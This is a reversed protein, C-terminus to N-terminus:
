VEIKFGVEVDSGAQGGRIGWNERAVDHLVIKVHDRPVDLAELNRVIAQYLARKAQITRGAFADITILTFREPTKLHPACMLRHPEHALLRVTKDGPPIRFAEVLAAHVAEMLATEQAPTYQRRVEILTAPM